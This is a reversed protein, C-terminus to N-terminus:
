VSVVLCKQQKKAKYTAKALMCGVTAPGYIDGDEILACGPCRQCYKIHSCDKCVPLDKFKINRIVEIEESHWIKQFDEKLLNGAPVRLAICPLLNAQNDLCFGNLAASCLPQDLSKSSDRPENEKKDLTKSVIADVEDQSLRYRLIDKDGNEKSVLLPDHALALDQSNCFARLEDFSPFNQKMIPTKIITRIGREKLLFITKLSKKHSGPTQTIEDHVEEDMSYLSVECDILNLEEIKDINFETILTGNTLLRLAFGENKALNAIEFFDERVLPEGGTLTLFLTGERKLINLVEKIQSFTLEEEKSLTKDQFCHLCNLNCKRTIEWICKFPIKKDATKKIIKLYPNLKTKPSM